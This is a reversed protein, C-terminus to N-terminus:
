LGASCHILVPEQGSIKGLLRLPAMKLEPVGRDPWNNWKLHRLMLKEERYSVEIM